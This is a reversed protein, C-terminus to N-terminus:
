RIAAFIIISMGVMVGAMVLGAAVNGKEIEKHYCVPDSIDFVKFAFILLMVGIIAWVVSSFISNLIVSFDM